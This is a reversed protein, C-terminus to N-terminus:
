FTRTFNEQAEDGGDVVSVDKREKEGRGCIKATFSSKGAESHDPNTQKNGVTNRRGPYKEKRKKREKIRLEIIM